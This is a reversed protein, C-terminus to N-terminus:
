FRTFGASLDQKIVAPVCNTCFTAVGNTAGFMVCSSGTSTSYDALVPLGEHCHPGVHGKGTYHTSVQDPGRGTGDAVMKLQHGLEHIMTQNQDTTSKTRWWARTCVCVINGGLSIGGRMRNVWNIKLTLTGTATALGSVKVKVKSSMDPVSANDAVLTCDAAPITVTDTGATGGDKLFTCSVFWGEGPVINNWLYKRRTSVPDIIDVEVDPRGSGVDVGSKTVEKDSDKVALHDTYAIAIVYPEKSPATSGTYATRAKTTFTAEDTRSINPM